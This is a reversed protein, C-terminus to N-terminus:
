SLLINLTSLQWANKVASCILEGGHLVSFIVFLGLIFVTDRMKDSKTSIANEGFPSDALLTPGLRQLTLYLLVVCISLVYRYHSCESCVTIYVLVNYM